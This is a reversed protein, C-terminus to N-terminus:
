KGKGHLANIVKLGMKAGPIAALLGARVPHQRALRAIDASFSTIHRGAKQSFSSDEESKKRDEKVQKSLEHEIQSKGGFELKGKNVLTTGVGVLGAGLLGGILADPSTTMDKVLRTPDIRKITEFAVRGAGKLANAASATKEKPRRSSIFFEARDAWEKSDIDGKMGSFFDDEHRM